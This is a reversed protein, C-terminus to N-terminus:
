RNAGKKVMQLRTAWIERTRPLTALAAEQGSKSLPSRSFAVLLVEPDPADDVTWSRPLLGENAPSGAYLETLTGDQLAAVTVRSYGGAAVKLQLADGPQVPAQGDWLSVVGHRNIYVAISPMGKAGRDSQEPGWYKMRVVVGVTAFLALAAVLSSRFLWWSDHARHPPRELERVWAPLPLEQQVRAM